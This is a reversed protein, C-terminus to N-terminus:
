DPKWIATENGGSGTHGSQTIKFTRPPCIQRCVKGLYKIVKPNDQFVVSKLLFQQIPSNPGSKSIHISSKLGVDPWVPWRIKASFLWPGIRYLKKLHVLDRRKKNKQQKWLAFVLICFIRSYTIFAYITHQVWVLLFIM